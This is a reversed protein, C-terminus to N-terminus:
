LPKAIAPIQSFFGTGGIRAGQEWQVPLPPRLDPLLRWGRTRVPPAMCFYRKASIIQTSIRSAALVPDPPPAAPPWRRPGRPGVQRHVHVDPEARLDALPGHGANGGLGEQNRGHGMAVAGVVHIEVAGEGDAPVGEDPIHLIDAAAQGVVAEFANQHDVAM